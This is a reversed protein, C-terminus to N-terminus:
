LKFLSRESTRQIKFSAQFILLYYRSAEPWRWSSRADLFLVLCTVGSISTSLVFIPFNISSFKNHEGKEIRKQNYRSRTERLSMKSRFMKSWFTMVSAERGIKSFSLATQWVQAIKSMKSAGSRRMRAVELWPSLVLISSGYSRNLCSLRVCKMIENM